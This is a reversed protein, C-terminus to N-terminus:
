GCGPPVLQVMRIGFHPLTASVDAALSSEIKLLDDATREEIVRTGSQERLPNQVANLKATAIADAIEQATPASM